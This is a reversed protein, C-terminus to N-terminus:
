TRSFRSYDYDIYDTREFRTDLIVVQPFFEDVRRTFDSAWKYPMCWILFDCDSQYISDMINKDMWPKYFLVPNSIDFEFCWQGFRYPMCRGQFYNETEDYILLGKRTIKPHRRLWIDQIKNPNGKSSLHDNIVRKMNKQYCNMNHIIDSGWNKDICILKDTINPIIKSINSQEVEHQMKREAIFTPNYTRKVESDNVCAVDFMINMEDSYFDPPEANHKNDHTIKDLKKLCKIIKKCFSNGNFYMIRTDLMNTSVNQLINFENDRYM